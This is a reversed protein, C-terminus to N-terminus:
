LSKHVSLSMDDSFGNMAAARRKFWIAPNDNHGDRECEGRDWSAGQRRRFVGDPVTENWHDFGPLLDVLVFNQFDALVGIMDLARNGISGKSDHILMSRLRDWAASGLDDIWAQQVGRLQM